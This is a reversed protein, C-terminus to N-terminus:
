YAILINELESPDSDKVQKAGRSQHTIKTFCYNYLYIFILFPDGFYIKNLFNKYVLYVYM